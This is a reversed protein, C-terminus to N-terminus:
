QGQLETRGDPYLMYDIIVTPPTFFFFGQWYFDWVKEKIVNAYVRVIELKFALPAFLLTM